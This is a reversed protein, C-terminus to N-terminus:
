SMDKLGMLLTKMREAESKRHMWVSLRVEEGGGLLRGRNPARFRNARGPCPPCWWSLVIDTCIEHQNLLRMRIWISESNEM